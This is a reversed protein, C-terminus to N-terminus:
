LQLRCTYMMYYNLYFLLFIYDVDFIAIFVQFFYNIEM